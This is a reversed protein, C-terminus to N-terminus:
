SMGGPCFFATGTAAAYDRVLRIATVRNRIQSFPDEDLPDEAWGKLRDGYWQRITNTANDVGHGSSSCPRTASFVDTELGKLKLAM